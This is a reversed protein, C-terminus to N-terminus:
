EHTRRSLSSRRYLCVLAAARPASRPSGAAAAANASAVRAVGAPVAANSANSHSRIRRHTCAFFAFFAFDPVASAIRPRVNRHRHASAARRCAPRVSSSSRHHYSRDRRQSDHRNSTTTQFFKYKHVRKSMDFHEALVDYSRRRRHRQTAGKTTSSTSRWVCSGILSTTFDISLEFFRKSEALRNKNIAIIVVFVVLITACIGVIASPGGSNTM